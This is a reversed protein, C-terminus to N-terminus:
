LAPSPDSPATKHKGEGKTHQGRTSLCTVIDLFTVHLVVHSYCHPLSENFPPRRPASLDYRRSTFWSKLNINHVRYVPHYCQDERVEDGTLGWIRSGRSVAGDM